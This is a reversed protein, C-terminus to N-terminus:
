EGYTVKERVHLITEGDRLLRLVGKYDGAPWEDDGKKVGVYRFMSAKPREFTEEHSALITGNPDLLMTMLVDGKRLGAVDTWFIMNESSLPLSEPKVVGDRIQQASPITNMFGAGLLSTTIYGLQEQAQKSWLSSHLSADCIVNSPSDPKSSAPMITGTFPDIVDQLYHVEFHLHPFETLGSLGVDGLHQGRVVQQDTEVLVSGRKMHCYLTKWGGEHRIVVANGCGRKDLAARTEDTVYADAMGDRTAQVIGDAAALVPIGLAMEQLNRLRFDTGKHGDYSLPGCRYDQWENRDGDHDLYNQIFCGQVASCDIPLDFAIDPREQSANTSGAIMAWLMVVGLALLLVHKLM